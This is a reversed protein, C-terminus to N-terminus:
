QTDAGLVVRGTQPGRHIGQWILVEDWNPKGDKRQSMRPKGWRWMEATRKIGQENRGEQGQGNSALVSRKDM